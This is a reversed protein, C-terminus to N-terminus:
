CHNTGMALQGRTPTQCADQATALGSEDTARHPPECTTKHSTQKTNGMLDGGAKLGEKRPTPKAAKGDPLAAKRKNGKPALHTYNPAYFLGGLIPFALRKIKV